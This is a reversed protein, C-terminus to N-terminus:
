KGGLKFYISKLWKRQKESPERWVTQAAMQDVFAREKSRLHENHQQCWRATRHWSLLSGDIDHFGDRENSSAAAHYGQEYGADYLKKMDAESFGGVREALAHIDLNAGRLTRVIARAAAIVEGEKDSSLFRIFSALKSVVPTPITM